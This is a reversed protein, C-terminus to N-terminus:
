KVMYLARPSNDNIKKLDSDKVDGIIKQAKSNTSLQEMMHSLGAEIRLTHPSIFDWNEFYKQQEPSPKILFNEKGYIQLLNNLDSTTPGVPNIAVVTPVYPPLIQKQELLVWDIDRFFPHNKINEWGNPGSGLRTADNVDLLKSIFDRADKSIYNPYNIKQFLMSYEKFQINEGVVEQLSSTLDIFNLIQKDAFPRTGTLLKYTTIGLSWWDVVNTYGKKIREKTHVRREKEMYNEGYLTPKNLMLVMEPAMYGLTGMISQKRRKKDELVFNNNNNNNNNNYDNNNANDNDVNYKESKKEVKENVKQQNDNTPIFNEHKIKEDSQSLVMNKENNNTNILSIERKDENSDMPIEKIFKGDEPIVPPIFETNNNKENDDKSSNSNTQQNNADDLETTVSEVLKELAKSSDPNSPDLNSPENSVLEFSEDFSANSNTTNELVLNKSFLPLLKERYNRSATWSGHDDMIGGLDVLQVHGDSNLLINQPKLDRYILGNQHIYILALVIEAMYFRVRDESLRLNSSTSLCYHLDGALALDLVMIALAETQFSYYLSVIFPHHLSSFADREIMIKKKINERETEKDVKGNNKNFHEQKYNDLMLIKNQIKM